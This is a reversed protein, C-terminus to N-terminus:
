ISCVEYEKPRARTLCKVCCPGGDAADDRSKGSALWAYDAGPVGAVPVMLSLGRAGNAARQDAESVIGSM